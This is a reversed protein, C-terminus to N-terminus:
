NANIKELISKELSQDGESQIEKSEGKYVGLLEEVTNEDKEDGAKKEKRPVPMDDFDPPM